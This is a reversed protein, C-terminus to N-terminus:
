DNLHSKQIGILLVGVALVAVGLGIGVWGLGSVGNRDTQGPVERGNVIMRPQGALTMGFHAPPGYTASNDSRLQVNMSDRSGAPESWAELRPAREARNGGGGFPIVVGVKVSSGRLDRQASSTSQATAATGIALLAITASFRHVTNM